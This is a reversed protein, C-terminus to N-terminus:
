YQIYKFYASPGNWEMDTTTKLGIPPRGSPRGPWRGEIFVIRPHGSEAPRDWGRACRLRGGSTGLNRAPRHSRRPANPLLLLVQLLARALAGRRRALGVRVEGRHLPPDALAEAQRPSVVLRECVGGELAAEGAVELPQGPPIEEVEVDFVLGLVDEQVQLDELLACVGLLSGDEVRSIDLDM